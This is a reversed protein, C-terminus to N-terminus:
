RQRRITPRPQFPDWTEAPYEILVDKNELTKDHESAKQKQPDNKESAALTQKAGESLTAQKMPDSPNGLFQRQYTNMAASSGLWTRLRSTMESSRVITAHPADMTTNATDLTKALTEEKVAGEQHQSELTTAHDLTAKTIAAEQASKLLPNQPPKKSLHNFFSEKKKPDIFDARHKKEIKEKLDTRETKEDTALERKEINEHHQEIEQKLQAQKNQEIRLKRKADIKLGSSGSEEDDGTHAGVIIKKVLSNGRCTSCVNGYVTGKPGSIELFATLSKDLGCTACSKNLNNPQNM